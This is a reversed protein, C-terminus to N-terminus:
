RGRLMRKRNILKGKSSNPLAINVTTGVGYESFLSITGGLKVVAERTIYLGLGVGNSLRTAKFFMDFVHDKHAAPIGIGNDFVEILLTDPETRMSISLLRCSKRLDCYDLANKILNYLIVRVRYPDSFFHHKLETEVSVEIETFLPHEKRFDELLEDLMERGNIFVNETLQRANRACTTLASIIQNLKEASSELMAIYQAAQRGDTDLKMLNVIGMISSLPARIDHSASYMFRDLEMSSKELAFVKERFEGERVVQDSIDIIIGDMWTESQRSVLRCTLSTWFIGGDRRKFAVRYNVVLGAAKIQAVLLERSEQDAFLRHVPMDLISEATDYGFMAVLSDNVLVIRGRPTCRFMGGWTTGELSKLIDLPLYARKTASLKM